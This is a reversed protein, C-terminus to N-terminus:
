GKLVEVRKARDKRLMRLAMAALELAKRPKLAIGIGVKVDYIKSLTEGFESAVSPDSFFVANDGGLYGGVSKFGLATHLLSSTMDIVEVYGLYHDKKSIFNIDFHVAAIKSQTICPGGELLAELPTKGCGVVVELPVPSLEELPKLWKEVDTNNAIFILIDKRTPLYFAERSAAIKTATRELENQIMQIKWERDDGIEETWERYGRLIVKVVKHM